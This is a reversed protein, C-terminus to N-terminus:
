EMLCRVLVVLVVLWLFMRGAERRLRAELPHVSPIECGSATLAREIDRSWAFAVIAPLTLLLNVACAAIVVTMLVTQALGGPSLLLEVVSSVMIAGSAVWVYAIQYARRRHRLLVEVPADAPYEWLKRRLLSRLM